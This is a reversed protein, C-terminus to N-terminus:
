QICTEVAGGRGRVIYCPHKQEYPPFFTNKGPNSGPTPLALLFCNFSWIPSWIWIGYISQGTTTEFKLCTKKEDGNRSSIGIQHNKLHNNFRGVLNKPCNQVYINWVGVNKQPTANKRQPPIRPVFLPFILPLMLLWGPWGQLHLITVSPKIPDFVPCDPLTKRSKQPPVNLMHHKKWTKRHNKRQNKFSYKPNM